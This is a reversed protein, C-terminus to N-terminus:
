DEVIFAIGWADTGIHTAIVPTAPASLVEVQGFEKRLRTTMKKIIDPYGVHVVGFRVKRASGVQEKVKEILLEAVRNRGIAKGVPVVKGEPDLGLVPKVNLMSGLVARGRGVRGSALLRDFTDVTFLINSQRRIRELEKVIEGPDTGLEALEAAKLVLLGQLLSAGL